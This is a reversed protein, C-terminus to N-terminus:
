SFFYALRPRNAKSISVFLLLFMRRLKTVLNDVFAYICDIGAEIHAQIRHRGDHVVYTGDGLASVRIPLVDEGFEIKRRLEEVRRPSVGRRKKTSFRLTEIPLFVPRM